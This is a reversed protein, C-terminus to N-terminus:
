GANNIAGLVIGTIGGSGAIFAAGIYVKRRLAYHSEAIAEVKKILGGEGDLGVIATYLKTQGEIVADLQTREAKTLAM